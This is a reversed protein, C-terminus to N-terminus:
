FKNLSHYDHKPESNPLFGLYLPSIHPAIVKFLKSIILMIKLALKTNLIKGFQAELFIASFQTKM